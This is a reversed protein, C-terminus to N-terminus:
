DPGPCRWELGIRSVRPAGIRASVSLTIRLELAGGEPFDLEFPRADIPATGVDVWTAETLSATTPAHRGEVRVRGHTGTDAAVHVRLWRTSADVGCGTFVRTASGESVFEEHLQAGTPDGQCHPALGVEVHATPIAGAAGIRSAVGRENPGGQSSIAWVNGLADAGMGITELPMFGDSVLASSERLRLPAVELRSVLGGTHAIWLERGMFTAGRPSPPVTLTDFRRDRPDYVTVRDCSFGTMAIRGEADVALGYLLWCAFPVEIIKAELPELSSDIETLHGDRDIAWLRGWPDFVASYPAFGPTEVRQRLAGTMGDIELIAEGDHLGIWVNGGSIGDLGRDGDIAIARAVDGEEGVEISAIVCEDEGWARVDEPGSSTDIRGDGNRDICRETTGAIKVVSSIGDFARNAIWADGNWDVAVRSPEQALTPEGTLYRATEIAREADIRSATGEASNAVWVTASDVIRVRALTLEGADTIALGPAENTFPEGWLEGRCESRCGGCPSRVGEDVRGDCDQDIEDCREPEAAQSGDCLGWHGAVCRARGPRCIGVFETGPTGPFCDTASGILCPCGTDTPDAACDPPPVRECDSGRAANEDDCDPGAECGEGLGDRDRDVCTAADCGSIMMLLLAAAPGVPINMALSLMGRKRARGSVAVCTPHSNEHRTRCPEDSPRDYLAEEFSM